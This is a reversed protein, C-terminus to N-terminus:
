RLHPLKPLFNQLCRCSLTCNNALMKVAEVPIIHDSSQIIRIWSYEHYSFSVTDFWIIIHDKCSLSSARAVATCRVSGVPMESPSLPASSSLPATVPRHPMSAACFIGGKKKPDCTSFRQQEMLSTHHIKKTSSRFMSVCLWTSVLLYDLSMLLLHTLCPSGFLLVHQVKFESFIPIDIQFSPDDVMMLWSLKWIESGLGRQVQLVRLKLNRLKEVHSGGSHKVTVKLNKWVSFSWLFIRTTVIESLFLDLHINWISNIGCFHSIADFFTSVHEHKM